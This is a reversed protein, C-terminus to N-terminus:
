EGKWDSEIKGFLKNKKETLQIEVGKGGSDFDAELTLPFWSNAWDKYLTEQDVVAPMKEPKSAKKTGQKRISAM